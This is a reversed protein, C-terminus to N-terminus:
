FLKKYLTGTLTGDFTSSLKISFQSALTKEVRIDLAASLIQPPGPCIKELVWM